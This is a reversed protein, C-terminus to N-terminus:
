QSGVDTLSCGCSYSAGLGPNVRAFLHVKHGTGCGQSSGKVCGEFGATFEQAPAQQTKAM